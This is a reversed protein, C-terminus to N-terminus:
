IMGQKELERYQIENYIRTKEKKTLDLSHEITKLRSANYKGSDVREQWSAVNSIANKLCQGLDASDIDAIFVGGYSYVRREGKHHNADFIYEAPKREPIFSM